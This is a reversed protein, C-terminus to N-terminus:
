SCSHVVASLKWTMDSSHIFPSFTITAKFIPYGRREKRKGEKSVDKVAKKAKKNREREWVEKGVKRGEKKIRRKSRGEKLM